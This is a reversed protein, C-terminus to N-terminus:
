ANMILAAKAGTGSIASVFGSFFAWGVTGSGTQVNPSGASSATISGINTWTIGDNSSLIQATASVSVGVSGATVQLLFAQNSPVSVGPNQSGGGSFDAMQSGAPLNSGKPGNGTQPPLTQVAAIGGFLVYTTM